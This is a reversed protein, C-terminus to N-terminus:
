IVIYPLNISFLKKPMVNRHFIRNKTDFCRNKTM